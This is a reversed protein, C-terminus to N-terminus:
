GLPQDRRSLGDDLSALHSVQPLFVSTIVRGLQSYASYVQYGISYVAVAATGVMAGVVLQGSKAFLIDGIMGLAVIGSFTLIDMYDKRTAGVRTLRFGVRSRAYAYKVTWFVCTLLFLTVCISLAYPARLLIAVVVFPQILVKAIEVTKLFVFRESAMIVVTYVYMVMNVCITACMVSLMWIGETM